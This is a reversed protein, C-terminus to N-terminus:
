KILTTGLKINITYLTGTEWNVALPITASPQTQGTFTYSVELYTGTTGNADRSQPIMFLYNSSLEQPTTTITMSSNNLTYNALNGVDGWAPKSGFYYKGSNSVNHLVISSVTLPTDGLQAKLTNSMLVNFAVAACAHDFTLPVKGGHDNYAVSNSAVLLDHQTSANEAVIFDVYPTGSNPYFTGSTFAYFPVPTTNGADEPWSDPAVTWTEKSKSASYSKATGNYIGRMSFADLTETTRIAARTARSRAESAGDETMPHESVEVSIRRPANTTTQEDDSSCATLLSATLFLTPFILKKDM